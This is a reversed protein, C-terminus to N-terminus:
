RARKRATILIAPALQRFARTPLHIYHGWPTLTRFIGLWGTTAFHITVWDLWWHRSRRQVHSEDKDLLKVIPGLPGDYVPVVLVLTGDPTLRESIAQAAKDPHDLHELVDFATVIEFTPGIGALDEASRVEFNEDPYTSANTAIAFESVDVGTLLLKSREPDSKRLCALFGGLGCGVDLVRIPVRDPMHKEAISRYFELKHMPNQSFYDRYTEAYYAEGYIGGDLAM